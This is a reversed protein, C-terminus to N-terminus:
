STVRRPLSDVASQPVGLAVAGDHVGRVLSIPVLRYDLAGRWRSLVVHTVTRSDPGCVLAAVQGAEEGDPCRIPMGRRIAVPPAEPGAPAIQGEVFLQPRRGPDAREAEDIPITL